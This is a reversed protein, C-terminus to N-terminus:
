SITYIYISLLTGLAGLAIMLGFFTWKTTPKHIVLAVGGMVLCLQLFLSALDFQDGIYGAKDALKEWEQAGTIKGMKGDKEQVWNAEGVELSGRLIEDKEKEYRAIKQQMKHINEYLAATDKGQISNSKLLTELLGIQGELLSEKISKSQYWQYASSKENIAKLEDGGAQGSGIQVVALISAFIALVLGCIVEFRNQLIDKNM